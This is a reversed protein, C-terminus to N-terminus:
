ESLRVQRVLCYDLGQCHRSRDRLLGKAVREACDLLSLCRSCWRLRLLSEQRGIVESARSALPNLSAVPRARPTAQLRDLCERRVTGVFREAVANAKRARVPTHIM